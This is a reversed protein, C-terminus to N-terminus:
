PCSPSRAQPSSTDPTSFHTHRYSSFVQRNASSYPYFYWIAFVIERRTITLRKDIARNPKSFIFIIVRIVEYFIAVIPQKLFKPLNDQFSIEHLFDFFKCSSSKTCDCVFASTLLRLHKKSAYIKLSTTCISLSTPARRHDQHFGSLRSLLRSTRCGRPHRPHLLASVM